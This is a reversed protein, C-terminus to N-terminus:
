LFLLLFFANATDLTQLIAMFSFMENKMKRRAKSLFFTYDLRKQTDQANLQCLFSLPNNLSACCACKM